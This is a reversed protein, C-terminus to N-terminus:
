QFLQEILQSIHRPQQTSSNYNIKCLMTKAMIESYLKQCTEVQDLQLLDEKEKICREKIVELPAFAYVVITDLKLERAKYVLQRELTRFQEDTIKCGGRWLTAYVYESLFSRDYIMPGKINNIMDMYETFSDDTKPKTLHTCELGFVESLHKALTSKGAKDSGEIICLM